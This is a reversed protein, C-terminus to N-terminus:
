PGHHDFEMRLQCFKNELCSLNLKTLVIADQVVTYHNNSGPLPSCPQVGQLCTEAHLYSLFAQSVISFEPLYLALAMPHRSLFVVHM